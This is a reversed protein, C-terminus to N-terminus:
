MQARIHVPITLKKRGKRVIRNEEYYDIDMTTREMLKQGLAIPAGSSVAPNDGLILSFELIEINKFNVKKMTTSM